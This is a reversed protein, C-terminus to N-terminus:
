DTSSFGCLYRSAISSLVSARIRSSSAFCASACREICRPGRAGRPARRSCARRRGGLVEVLYRELGHGPNEGVEKWRSSEVAFLPPALCAGHVVLLCGPPLARNFPGRGRLLRHGHNPSQVPGRENWL